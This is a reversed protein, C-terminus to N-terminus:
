LRFFPSRLGDDYVTFFDRIVCGDIRRGAANRSMPIAEAHLEFDSWGSSITTVGDVVATFANVSFAFEATSEFRSETNKEM